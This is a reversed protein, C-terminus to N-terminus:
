PTKLSGQSDMRPNWRALWQNQTENLKCAEPFGMGELTVKGQAWVLHLIQGNTFLFKSCEGTM